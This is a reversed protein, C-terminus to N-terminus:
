PSLCGIPIVFVGDERRYAFGTYTVVAPFVPDGEQESDVKERLKLLNKAASDIAGRGLKVEFKSDGSEFLSMTTM